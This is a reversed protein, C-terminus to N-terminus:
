QLCFYFRHRHPKVQTMVFLVSSFKVRQVPIHFTKFVAMIHDALVALMSHFIDQIWEFNLWLFNEPLHASSGKYHCNTHIIILSMQDTGCVKEKEGRNRKRERKTAGAM